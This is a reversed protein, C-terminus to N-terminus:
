RKALALSAEGHAFFFFLMIHLQSAQTPKIPIFYAGRQAAPSTSFLQSSDPETSIIDGSKLGEGLVASRLPWLPPPAAQADRQEPLVWM